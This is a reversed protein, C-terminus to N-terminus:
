WGPIGHLHQLKNNISLNETISFKILPLQILITWWDYCNQQQHHKVWCLQRAATCNSSISRVWVAEERDEEVPVKSIILIIIICNM